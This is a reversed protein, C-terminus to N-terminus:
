APASLHNANPFADNCVEIGAKLREQQKLLSAGGSLVLGGGVLVSPLGAMSGLGVAHLGGDIVGELVKKGGWALRRLFPM